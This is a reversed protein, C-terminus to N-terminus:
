KGSTDAAALSPIIREVSDVPSVTMAVSASRDDVAVGGAHKGAAFQFPCGVVRHSEAVDGGILMKRDVRKTGSLSFGLPHYVLGRQAQPVPAASDKAVAGRVTGAAILHATVLGIVLSASSARM